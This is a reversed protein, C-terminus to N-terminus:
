NGGAFAATLTNPKMKTRTHTHTHTHTQRDTQATAKSLRSRSVENKTDLYMNLINVDQENIL